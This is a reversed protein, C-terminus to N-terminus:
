ALVRRLAYFKLNRHLKPLTLGELAISQGGEGTKNKSGKKIVQLKKTKKSKTDYSVVHITVLLFFHKYTM